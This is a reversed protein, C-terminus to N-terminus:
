TFLVEYRTGDQTPGLPVLFLPLTGLTQHSLNFIHQNLIFDTRDCHFLLSFQRRNMDDYIPGVEKVEILKLDFTQDDELNIRFITNLHPTFDGSQVTSLDM